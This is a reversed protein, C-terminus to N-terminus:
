LRHEEPAHGEVWHSGDPLFEKKWVPLIQKVREIAYRCAEFAEPRHPASVVILISGEGPLVRGLRHWLAVRGLVWRARMEAIIQQMVKEAMGPYAEYELYSVLLGKNPSRTTGLFSVVAGYPHDSAWDVWPQLALAEYTLGFSENGTALAPDAAPTTSGGSVPPLFALEDGDKLPQHPQALQENIAALGGSLRLPYQAELLAKVDAVTSGEPLELQLRAQGAQERFLAFLLVQVRM